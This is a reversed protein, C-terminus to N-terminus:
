VYNELDLLDFREKITTTSLKMEWNGRDKQLKQLESQSKTLLEMNNYEKAISLPKKYLEEANDIKGQILDM